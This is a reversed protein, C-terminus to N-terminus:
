KEKLLYKNSIAKLSRVGPIIDEGDKRRWVVGEALRDKALLSKLGDVAELAEEVSQPAPIRPGIIVDEIDDM